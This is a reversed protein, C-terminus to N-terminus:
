SIALDTLRSRVVVSRGRQGIEAEISRISFRLWSDLSFSPVNPSLLVVTGKNSSFPSGIHFTKTNSLKPIFTM